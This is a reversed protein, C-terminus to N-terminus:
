KMKRAKIQYGVYFQLGYTRWPDSGNIANDNNLGEQYRLGFKTKGLNLEAGFVLSLESHSFAHQDPKALLLHETQAVAYGYQPGILISLLPMPRYMLLVPVAVYNVSVLQGAVAGYTGYISGIGNPGQSTKALTQNYLLETQLSFYKNYNFDAYAGGNLSLYYTHDWSRGGVQFYNGGAKLGWEMSKQAFSDGATLTLLLLTALALKSRM